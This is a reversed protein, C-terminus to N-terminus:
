HRRRDIGAQQYYRAKDGYMRHDSKQLAAEVTMDDTRMAYGVSVSYGARTVDDTIRRLTQEVASSDSLLFLVVFEDGGVRYAITNRSNARELCRGVEALARDGAAHGLTDNIRKLGNMDMSAVATINRQQYRIDDYFAFRNDLSTLPDLRNDHSHLFLYFFISSIMIAENLRSGGYFSDILSAIMCSSACIILILREPRMREHFRQWTIVLLQVMYLAAVIFVCLGLPGRVFGYDPGYSFAIPSFFATLNVLLNIVALIWLKWSRREPPYVVLLIGLGAVPRLTYGIISLLIRWFILSPDRATISEAVDEVVLLICCIITMWFYRLEVEKSQRQNSLKISYVVILLITIFHRSILLDFFSPESM